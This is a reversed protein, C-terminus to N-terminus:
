SVGTVGGQWQCVNKAFLTDKTMTRAIRHLHPSPSPEIDSYVAFHRVLLSAKRWGGDCFQLIACRYVQDSPPLLVIGSKGGSVQPAAEHSSCVNRHSCGCSCGSDPMAGIFHM